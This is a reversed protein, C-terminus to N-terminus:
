RRLQETDRIMKQNIGNLRKFHKIENELHKLGVNDDHSMLESFKKQKQSTSVKNEVLRRECAKIGEDVKMKVANENRTNPSYRSGLKTM